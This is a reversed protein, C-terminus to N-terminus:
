RPHRGHALEYRAVLHARPVAHACGFARRGLDDLPEVFLDIGAEGIGLDLLPETVQAANWHRHRWVLEALEDDDFGLLPALYDPGGVDFRLSWVNFDRESFATLWHRSQTM